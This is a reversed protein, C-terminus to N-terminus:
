NNKQRSLYAKSNKMKAEISKLELIEKKKIIEKKKSINGNQEYMVAKVKGMDEKLDKLMKLTTTKFGKDLLGVMMKEPIAEVPKNKRNFLDYKGTEEYSKYNKNFVPCEFRIIHYDQFDDPSHHTKEKEPNATVQNQKKNKNNYAM